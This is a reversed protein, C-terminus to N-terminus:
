TVKETDMLIDLIYDYGFWSGIKDLVKARFSPPPFVDFTMQHAKLFAVAHGKEIQSMQRFVDAIVPDTENDALRQYLYSADVETQISKSIM